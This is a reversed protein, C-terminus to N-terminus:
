KDKFVSDGTQRPFSQDLDSFQSSRQADRFMDEEERQQEAERALKFTNDTTQKKKKELDFDKSKTKRAHSTGPKTLSIMKTKVGKNANTKSQRTSSSPRSKSKHTSYRSENLSM